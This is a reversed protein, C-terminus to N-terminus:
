SRVSSKARAIEALLTAEIERLRPWTDAVILCEMSSSFLEDIALILAGERRGPELALGSARLVKLAQELPPAAINRRSSVCARDAYGTGLLRTALMHLISCGGWRGNVENFLVNGAETRIADINILGRYGMSAALMALRTAESVLTAAAGVPLPAPIDLGMWMLEKTTPDSSPEMRLTGSDLFRPVGSADVLFEVYMIHSALHYSEVVLQPCARSSMTNWLREALASWDDRAEIVDTVGALPNPRGTTVAINGLGLVNNDQKVIATGTQQIHRRLSQVLTAVDYAVSGEPIPLGIGAALQRFHTKRNFLDIGCQAAVASGAPAAIGLRAALEVVGASYYCTSISWGAGTSVRARMQEVLAPALLQQDSLVEHLGDREALTLVTLSAADFGNISGVYRLWEASVPSPMVILDGEEAFWLQRWGAKTALLRQGRGFEAGLMQETGANMIVLKPM